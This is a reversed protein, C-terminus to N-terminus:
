QNNYSSGCTECFNADLESQNGCNVCYKSSKVSLVETQDSSDTVSNKNLESVAAQQQVPVSIYKVYSKQSKSNYAIVFSAITAIFFIGGFVILAIGIPELIPINVGIKVDANVGKSADEKMLIFTLDQNFDSKSPTYYFVGVGSAIWFSQNAPSSLLAGTRDVNMSYTSYSHENMQSVVEYPVNGLYQQVASTPALGMFYSEAIVRVNIIKAYNDFEYSFSFDDGNNDSGHESNSDLRFSETVFAYSNDSKLHFTQANMYGQDDALVAPLGLAVVGGLMMPVSIMLFFVGFVVGIVRTKTAM